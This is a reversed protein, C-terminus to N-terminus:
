HFLTIKLHYVVKSFWKQHSGLSKLLSLRLDLTFVVSSYLTPACEEAQLVKPTSLRTPTKPHPSLLTVLM